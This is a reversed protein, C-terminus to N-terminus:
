TQSLSSNKPAAAGPTGSSDFRPRLSNRLTSACPDEALSRSAAPTNPSTRAPSRRAPFLPVREQPSAARSSARSSTATSCVTTSRARFQVLAIGAPLNTARRRGNPSVVREILQPMLLGECPRTNCSLSQTNARAAAHADASAKATTAPTGCAIAADGTTDPSDCPTAADGVTDPAALSLPVDSAHVAGRLVPTNATAPTLSTARAPPVDRPPLSDRRLPVRAVVRSPKVM